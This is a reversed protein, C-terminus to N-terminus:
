QDMGLYTVFIGIRYFKKVTMIYPNKYCALTKTGALGKWGLRINKPLAPTPFVLQPPLSLVTSWRM